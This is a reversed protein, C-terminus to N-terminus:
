EDEGLDFVHFVLAGGQLQFTGIFEAASVDALGRGTMGHGTGVVSIRRKATPARDDCIAWLKPGGHQVGVSLIEAGRPMEIGDIADPELFFKWIVKM